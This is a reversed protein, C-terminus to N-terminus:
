TKCYVLNLNRRCYVLNSSRRCYVLNSNRRCYLLNSNRSCYVLNSNRRCYVLNTFGKSEKKRRWKLMGPRNESIGAKIHFIISRGCQILSSSQLSKRATVSLSLIKNKNIWNKRVLFSCNSNFYLSFLSRYLSLVGHQADLM